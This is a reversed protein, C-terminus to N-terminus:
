FIYRLQLSGTVGDRTGAYGQVGLDLSIPLGKSPKFTLGLEGIGTGGALDPADISYGYTTARAKGDFEYEYAAGVYPSIRENAAYSLRTGVRLRHSDVADFDVPDDTSLHLSDGNQYTWFYKGYLDLVAKDTLNWLYGAGLHLGYYASSSDYTANHGMGDRLSDSNYDNQVGGARASAEAYFHGTDCAIFDMRGIIGGGLHSVDGDGHTNFANYIDYSGNGYEFFVGLTLSCPQLTAQHSVGAMLSVSSMEVHSGTDYRSRGGSVAGFIGLGLSGEAQQAANMAESMGQGAILDAGQNLLATGSVFGESLGKTGPKVQVGDVVAYLDNTEQDLRLNLNVTAGQQGALITGNNTITGIFNDASILSIKEGPQLAHGGGLITVGTVSSFQYQSPDPPLSPNEIFVFDVMGAKLGALSAPLIFNYYQFNQVSAM